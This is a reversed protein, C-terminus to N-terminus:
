VPSGFTIKYFLNSPFRSYHKPIHWRTPPRMTNQGRRRTNTGNRVRDLQQARQSFHVNVSPWIETKWHVDVAVDGIIHAAAATTKCGPSSQKQPSVGDIPQGEQIYWMDRCGCRLEACYLEICRAVFAVCRILPIDARNWNSCTAITGHAVVFRFWGVFLITKRVVNCEFRIYIIKYSPYTHYVRTATYGHVRTVYRLTYGGSIM